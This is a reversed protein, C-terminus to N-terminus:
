YNCQSVKFHRNKYRKVYLVYIVVLICKRNYISHRFAFVSSHSLWKVSCVHSVCVARFLHKDTRFTSWTWSNAFSLVFLMRAMLCTSSLVKIVSHLINRRGKHFQYCVCLFRYNKGRSIQDRLKRRDSFVAILLIYTGLLSPTDHSRLFNCVVYRWENARENV